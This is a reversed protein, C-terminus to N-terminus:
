QMLSWCATTSCAARVHSNRGVLAVAVKAGCKPCDFSGKEGPTDLLRAKVEMTRAIFAALTPDDFVRTM